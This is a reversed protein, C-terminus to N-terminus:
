HLERIRQIVEAEKTVDLKGVWVDSLIGDRNVILLTPTASVNLDSLAVNVVEDVVFGKESLYRAVDAKAGPIVAVMRLRAGSSQDHLRRYFDVSEECYRCGQQLALVLTPGEQWKLGPVSVTTGVSPAEPHAKAQWRSVIFSRVVIIAVVLIAVNASIELYRRAKTSIRM